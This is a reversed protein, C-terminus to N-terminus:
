YEDCYMTCMHKYEWKKLIKTKIRERKNLLLTAASSRSLCRWILPMETSPTILPRSLTWRSGIALLLIRLSLFAALVKPMMMDAKRAQQNGKKKHYTSLLIHYDQISNKTKYLHYINYKHFKTSEQIRSHQSRWITFVSVQSKLPISKSFKFLLINYKLSM